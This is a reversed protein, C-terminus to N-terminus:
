KTTDAYAKDKGGLISMASLFPIRINKKSWIRAGEEGGSVGVGLFQIGQAKLNRGRM